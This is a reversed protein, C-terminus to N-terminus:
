VQLSSHLVLCDVGASLPRRQHELGAQLQVLLRNPQNSGVLALQAKRSCELVAPQQLRAALLLVLSAEEQQQKRSGGLGKNCRNRALLLM